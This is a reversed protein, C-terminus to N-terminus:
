FPVYDEHLTRVFRQNMSQNQKTNTCFGSRKELVGNESFIKNDLNSLNFVTDSTFHKSLKPTEIAVSSLHNSSFQLEDLINLIEDQANFITDELVADISNTANNFM